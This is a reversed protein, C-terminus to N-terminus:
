NKAQQDLAAKLGKALTQANGVGWYHLIFIEPEEHVLHNHVTVGEFGNEALAKLVPGIENRMMTFDGAVIAKENTGQWAAWNNFELFKSVPIGHAKLVDPRGISYKYVEGEVEGKYGIISDLTSISLNTILMNAKEEQQVKGNLQKLNTFLSKVSTTLGGPNGLGTIHMFVIINRNRDPHKHIETITLGHRTVEQQVTAFHTESTILDGIIRASDPSPTFAAWNGLGSIPIIKFGNVIINLEHQLVPISPHGDKGATQVIKQMETLSTGPPCSILDEKQSASVKSNTSYEPHQNCSLILILYGLYYVTRM